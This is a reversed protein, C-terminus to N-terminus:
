SPHICSLKANNSYIPYFTHRIAAFCFRTLLEWITVRIIVMWFGIALCFTLFFFLRSYGPTHHISIMRTGILVNLRATHPIKLGLVRHQTADIVPTQMLIIVVIACDSTLYRKTCCVERLDRM